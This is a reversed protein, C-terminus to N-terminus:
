SYFKWGTTPAPDLGVKATTLDRRVATGHQQRRRLAAEAQQRPQPATQHVPTLPGLDLMPQRRQQALPDERHRQAVFVDVVMLAQTVIQHQLGGTTAVPPQGARRRHAPQLPRRVPAPGPRRMHRHDLGEDGGEIGGGVLQHEVEVGGVIGHVPALNAAEEVAIVVM